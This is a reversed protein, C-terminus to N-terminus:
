KNPTTTTTTITSKKKKKHKKTSQPKNKKEEIDKQMKKLTEQTKQMISDRKIKAIKEQSLAERKRTQDMEKATIKNMSDTKAQLRKGIDDYMTALVDIHKSYYRMSKNFQATDTHYQKLIYKFKGTGYKFLSDGNPQLVLNGDILHIDTLLRIMEDKKIVGSTDEEQTCAFLFLLASFFLIIHKRM